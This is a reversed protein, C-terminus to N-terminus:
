TAKWVANLVAVAATTTTTTAGRMKLEYKRHPFLLLV